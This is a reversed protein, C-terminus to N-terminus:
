EAPFKAAAFTPDMLRKAPGDFTTSSNSNFFAAYKPQIQNCKSWMKGLLVAVMCSLLLEVIAKGTMKERSTNVVM